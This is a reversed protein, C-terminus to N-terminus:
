GARAQALYARALGQRGRGGAPRASRGGDPPRRPHNRAHLAHLARGHRTRGAERREHHPGPPRALALTEATARTQAPSIASRTAASIASASASPSPSTPVARAARRRRCCPSPACMPATSISSSSATSTSRASRPRPRWARATRASAKRGSGPAVLGLLPRLSRWLADVGARRVTDAAAIALAAGAVPEADDAALVRDWVAEAGERFAAADLGLLLAPLLGVLTLVSYRGGIDLPHDLAPAGIEEAFKRAPNNATPETLVAFHQALYKGGGAAKLAEAAALAQMMTEGTSGSKSVVLFRTTRLDLATLAHAFTAGDLNDFVHFRMDGIRDMVGPTRWGKLQAVAQAGLGSGGVGLLCLDTTNKLLHASWRNPSPSITAAASLGYLPQGGARASDRAQLHPKLAALHAEYAEHGLPHPGSQAPFCHRLDQVYPLTM